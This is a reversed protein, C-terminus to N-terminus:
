DFQIFCFNEFSDLLLPTRLPRWHKFGKNYRRSVHKQESDGLFITCKIPFAAKCRGGDRAIETCARKHDMIFFRGLLYHFDFCFTKLLFFYPETFREVPHKLLWASAAMMMLVHLATDFQITLFYM